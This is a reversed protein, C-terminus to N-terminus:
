SIILNVDINSLAKRLEDGLADALFKDVEKSHYQKNLGEITIDVIRAVDIGIGNIAGSFASNIAKSVATNIMPEIRTNLYEEIQERAIMTSLDYFERIHQAHQISPESSALYGAYTISSM